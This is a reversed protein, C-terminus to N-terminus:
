QERLAQALAENIAARVGTSTLTAGSVGDIEASQTELIQAAFTGDEIAEKGGIGKTEGKGTVVADTINNEDVTLEVTIAGM